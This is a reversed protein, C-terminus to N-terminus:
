KKETGDREDNWNNKKLARQRKVEYMAIAGAVGVNLSDVQGSMPMRVLYDCHERVLRALGRGESGLVLGIADRGDMATYARAAPANDLGIIWVHAKKMADIAQVLNAVRCLAVHESAGASARVVAPTVSAARDKPLVIGSVGAADATRILSGLNQPDQVHDLLLWFGPEGSAGPDLLGAKFDAYVPPSTRLAVGQHNEADLTTKFWRADEWAVSIGVARALAVIEDIEPGGSLKGDRLHIEQVDRRGAKLVEIAPRRGYLWEGRDAGRRRVRRGKSSKM